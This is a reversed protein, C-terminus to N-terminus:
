MATLTVFLFRLLFQPALLRAHLEPLCCLYGYMQPACISWFAFSYSRLWPLTATYTILLWFCHVVINNVVSEIENLIM